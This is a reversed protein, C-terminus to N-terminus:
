DIKVDAFKHKIKWIAKMYWSSFKESYKEGYAKMRYNGHKRKETISQVRFCVNNILRNLKTKILSRGDLLWDFTCATVASFLSCYVKLLM